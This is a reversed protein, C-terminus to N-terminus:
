EQKEPEVASPIETASTENESAPAPQATDEDYAWPVEAGKEDILVAQGRMRFADAFSVFEVPYVDGPKANVMGETKVGGCFQCAGDGRMPRLVGDLGRLQARQRGTGDCGRCTRPSSFGKGGCTECKAEGGPDKGTGQCPGCPFRMKPTPYFSTHQIGGFGDPGLNPGGFRLTKGAM